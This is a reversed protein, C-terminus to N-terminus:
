RERTKLDLALGSTSRTGLGSPDSVSSHENKNMGTTSELPFLSTCIISDHEITAATADVVEAATAVADADNTGKGVMTDVAAVVVAATVESEIAMGETAVVSTTDGADEVATAEDTLLPATAVPLGAM